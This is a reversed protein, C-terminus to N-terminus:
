REVRIAPFSPLVPWTGGIANILGALVVVVEGAVELCAHEYASLLPRM